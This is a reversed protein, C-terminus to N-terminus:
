WLMQRCQKRIKVFLYDKSILVNQNLYTQSLVTPLFYWQCTYMISPPESFYQSLLELYIIWNQTLVQFFVSKTSQIYTARNTISFSRVLPHKETQTYYYLGEFRHHTSLQHPSFSFESRSVVPNQYASIKAFIIVLSLPKNLHLTQPQQCVSVSVTCRFHLSQEFLKMKQCITTLPASVNNELKM